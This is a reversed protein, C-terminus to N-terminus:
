PFSDITKWHQIWPTNKDIWQPKPFEDQFLPCTAECSWWSAVDWITRGVLSSVYGGFIAIQVHNEWSGWTPYTLKRSPLDIIKLRVVLIMGSTRKLTNTNGWVNQCQSYYFLTLVVDKTIPDQFITQFAWRKHIKQSYFWTVFIHVIGGYVYYVLSISHGELLYKIESM